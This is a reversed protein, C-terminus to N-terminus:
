RQPRLSRGSTNLPKSRPAGAVVYYDCPESKALDRNLFETASTLGQRIPQRNRYVRYGALEKELNANWELLVTHDAADGILSSPARVAPPAWDGSRDALATATFSLWALNLLCLLM